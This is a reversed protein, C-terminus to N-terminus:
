QKLLERLEEFTTFIPSQLITERYHDNEIKNITNNMLTDAQKFTRISEEVKNQKHLCEALTTLFELQLLTPEDDLDTTAARLKDEAEKLARPRELAPNNMREIGRLGFLLKKQSPDIKDLGHDTELSTLDIDAQEYEDNKILIGVYSIRTTFAMYNMGLEEALTIATTLRKKANNFKGEEKDVLGLYYNAWISAPRYGASEVLRLGREFYDRSLDHQMAGYYTEGLNIYAVLISHADGVQILAKLGQNLADIRQEFKNTLRLSIATSLLAKAEGVKDSLERYLAVSKRCAETNEPQPRGERALLAFKMYYDALLEKKLSEENISQIDPLVSELEDLGTGGTGILDQYHAIQIKSLISVRGVPLLDIASRYLTCAEEYDGRKSCMEAEQFHVNGTQEDSTALTSASKLAESAEDYKGYFSYLTGLKIRALFAEQKDEKSLDAFRMYHKLWRFSESIAGKAKTHTAALLAFYRAKGSDLSDCYHHATLPIVTEDGKNYMNEYFLGYRSQLSKRVGMSLEQYLFTRMTDHIFQYKLINFASLKETIIGMRLPAALAKAVALPDLDLVACVPKLMFSGGPMMSGTCLIEKESGTLKKVREAMLASVSDPLPMDDTIKYAWGGSAVSEIAGTSHLTILLEKLYLPNGSCQKVLRKLIDGPIKPDRLAFMVMHRIYEEDLASLKLETLKIISSLIKLKKEIEPFNKTPARMTAIFLISLTGSARALYALLDYDHESIWHLNDVTLIVPQRSAIWELILWIESYMKLRLVSEKDTEAMPVTGLNLDPFLEATQPLLGPLSNRLDTIDDDPLTRLYESIPYTITLFPRENGLEDCRTQLSLCDKFSSYHELENALRTKGIGPAGSILIFNGIGNVTNNLTDRLESLEDIRGVFHEFTIKNDSDIESLEQHFSVRGRGSKKAEYLAKDARGLIDALLNDTPRSEAVGISIGIEMGDPFVERALCQLIREGHNVAQLQETGPMIIVFEDGGYRILTDTNRRNRSLINAVMRIVKDGELHGFVDNVLKFHDIDIIAISWIDAGAAESFRSDLENMIGRTYLGTLDDLKNKSTM